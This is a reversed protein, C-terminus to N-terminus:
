LLPQTPSLFVLSKWLIGVRLFSLASVTRYGRSYCYYQLIKCCCDFGVQEAVMQAIEEYTKGAATMADTLTSEGSPYFYTMVMNRLLVQKDFQNLVSAQMIFSQMTFQM